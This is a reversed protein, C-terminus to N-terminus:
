GAVSWFARAIWPLVLILGVVLHFGIMDSLREPPQRSMLKAMEARSVANDPQLGALRATQGHGAVAVVLLVAAAALQVGNGPVLVVFEGLPVYALVVVCAAVRLPLEFKGGTTKLLNHVYVSLVLYLFAGAGSWLAARAVLSITRAHPHLENVLVSVYACFAVLCLFDVPRM